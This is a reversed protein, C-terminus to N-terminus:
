ISDLSSTGNQNYIEEYLPGRHSTPHEGRLSRRSYGVLPQFFLMRWGKKIYGSFIGERDAKSLGEKKSFSAANTEFVKEIRGELNILLWYRMKVQPLTWFKHHMRKGNWVESIKALNLDPRERCFSSLNVIVVIEGTLQNKLEFSDTGRKKQSLRIKSEETTSFRCSGGETLNYGNEGFSNFKKIFEIELRNLDKRTPVNEALIEISFNTHGFIKADEKLLRSKTTKWWRNQYRSSFTGNSQGIYSKNNVLNTIKYIIM